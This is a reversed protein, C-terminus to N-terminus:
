SPPNDPIGAAADNLIGRLKVVSGCHWIANSFAALVPNEFQLEPAQDPFMLSLAQATQANKYAGTESYLTPGFVNGLLTRFIGGSADWHRVLVGGQAISVHVVEGSDLEIRVGRGMTESSRLLRPM